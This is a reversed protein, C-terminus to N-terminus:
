KLLTMKNNQVFDNVRLSYIYVGSPLHSADFNISYSGEAKEENVLEAVESGLLDYVKLQVLGSKPIQYIINTIPNFPNPYNHYLKYDTPHETLYDGSGKKDLPAGAVRATVKDSPISELSQNDVATIRYDINHENAQHAGTLYTETLDVYSTATTTALYQWGWEATVKKYIKYSVLDPEINAEWTLLPHNNASPGVQLNQPKSPSADQPDNAFLKVRIYGQLDNVTLVEMGVNSSYRTNPVFPGSQPPISPTPNRSDSWPSLVRINCNGPFSVGDDTQSPIGDPCTAGYNGSAYILGNNSYDSIAGDISRWVFIGQSITGHPWAPPFFASNNYDPLTSNGIIMNQNFRRNEFVFYDNGSNSNIRYVPPNTLSYHVNWEPQGTIVTPTIWGKQIRHLPNLPAPAAYDGNRPSDMVDARSGSAHGIGLLHAFEHCHVGIRSFKDNPNEQITQFPFGNREGMIYRNSSAQPNLAGYIPGYPPNPQYRTMTSGAYIIVLKVSSSTSTNLGASNAANIADSFFYSSYSFLLENYYGKTHPVEVWVPINNKGINNIVNGEITLNGSSM